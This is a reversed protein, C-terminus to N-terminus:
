AMAFCSISLGGNSRRERDRWRLNDGKRNGKRSLLYVRDQGIEIIWRDEYELVGNERTGEALLTAFQKARSLGGVGHFWARPTQVFRELACEVGCRPDLFDESNRVVAATYALEGCGFNYAAIVVRTDASM